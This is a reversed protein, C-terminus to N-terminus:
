HPNTASTVCAVFFDVAQNAGYRLKGSRGNCRGTFEGIVLVISQQDALRFLSLTFQTKSLYSATDRGTSTLGRFRCWANPGCRHPCLRANQNGFLIQNALRTGWRSLWSLERENSRRLVIKTEQRPCLH